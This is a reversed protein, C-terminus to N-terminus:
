KKKKQASYSVSFLGGVTWVGGLFCAARNTTCSDLPLSSLFGLVWVGGSSIQRPQPHTVTQSASPIGLGRLVPSAAFASNAFVLFVHLLQFYHALCPRNPINYMTAFDAESIPENSSIVM